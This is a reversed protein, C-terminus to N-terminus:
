ESEHLVVYVLGAPEFYAVIMTYASEEQPVINGGSDFFQNFIGGESTMFDTAILKEHLDELTMDWSLGPLGIRGPYPYANVQFGVVKGGQVEIQLAGDLYNFGGHGIDEAEGFAADFASKRNGLAATRNGETCTITLAEPANGGNSSCAAFLMFTSLIILILSLRKGYTHNKRNSLIMPM